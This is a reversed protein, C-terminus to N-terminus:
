NLVIFFIHWRREWVAGKDPGGLRTSSGGSYSMPWADLRFAVEMVGFASCM